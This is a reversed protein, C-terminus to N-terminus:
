WKLKEAIDGVFPMKWKEGRWVKSISFIVIGLYVIAIFIKSWIAFSSLWGIVLFIIALVLGQKGHHQCFKSQPKIALPLICFFSIYGLASLIKDGGPLADGPNEDLSVVAAEKSKSPKQEEIM